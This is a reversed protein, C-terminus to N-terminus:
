TFYAENSFDHAVLLTRNTAALIMFASNCVMDYIHYTCYLSRKEKEVFRVQNKQM